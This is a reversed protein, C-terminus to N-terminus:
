NFDFIYKILFNKGKAYKKPHANVDLFQFHSYFNRYKQYNQINKPILKKSEFDVINEDNKLKEHVSKSKRENSKEGLIEIFKEFNLVNLFDM